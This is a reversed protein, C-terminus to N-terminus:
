VNWLVSFMALSGLIYVVDLPIGIKLFDTFRYGGPEYVMMHTQYGMPVAYGASAGIAVAIAFNRPDVNFQQALSVAFPFMLAAAANNTLVETVLCTATLIAALGALPGFDKLMHVIGGTIGAAIGTKELAMALGFSCAIVTLVNWEVYKLAEKPKVQGSIITAAAALLAAQFMQLWGIAVVFVTLSLVIIPLAISRASLISLEPEKSVQPGFLKAEAVGSDPLLRYGFIVVYGIALLAVPIGIYGIEFFGMAGIGHKDMLGSVVLNTSTGILSGMGGFTVAYSLPLLLKGPAIGNKYGWEVAVPTLIAVIPTNNFFISFLGSLLMLRLITMRGAAQGGFVLEGLLIGLGGKHFGAAVIYLLAVTLMEKNTFGSFAQEPTLIGGITLVSLALFVSVNAPIKECVLAIFLVIFVFSTFYLQM